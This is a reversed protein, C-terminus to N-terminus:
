RGAERSQRADREIARAVHYTVFALVVVPVLTLAHTLVEVLLPGRWPSALLVLGVFYALIVIPIANISVDLLTGRNAWELM